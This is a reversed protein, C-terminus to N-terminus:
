LQRDNILTAPVLQVTACAPHQETSHLNQGASELYVKSASQIATASVPLCTAASNQPCFELHQEDGALVVLHVKQDDFFNSWM